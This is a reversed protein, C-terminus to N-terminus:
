AKFSPQACSPHPKPFAPRTPPTETWGPPQFQITKLAGVSAETIQAARLAPTFSLLYVETTEEEEKSTKDASFQDSLPM